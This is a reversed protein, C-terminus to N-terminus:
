SMRIEGARGFLRQLRTVTEELTETRLICDDTNIRECDAFFNYSVPPDYTMDTWQFVHGCDSAMGCMLGMSATQDSSEWYM